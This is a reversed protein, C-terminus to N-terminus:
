AGPDWAIRFGSHGSSTDASRGMRAAIRYRHCYSAHCLYSGGKQLREADARAAKDRARAERSLANVRFPDACWEWVNGVM